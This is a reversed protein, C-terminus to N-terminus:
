ERREAKTEKVFTKLERKMERHLVLMGILNPLTMLVIAIGSFAWIISTDVFASVFFGIVFIVRFLTLWKVGFLFTIARDGYYSWSVATSFAFLLLSLSVIYEGFKGLPSRSFAQTTLPASHILSKGRIIFTDSGDINGAKIPITGTFPKGGKEFVVEEAVSRAHLITVPTLVKGDKVEISGSPMNLDIKGAVHEYLKKTDSESDTYLAALVDMDATQFQNDLKDKWVGSSLITLGTFMCIIVTDIFPELLAVCGESCPYKTKAAAHAIPSSGQGAENSFLGRNVGRNFAFAVSAGIFGGVAATGNFVGSFIAEISPLINQYNFILVCSAGVFYIVAMTPVLSQTVKVIRKIGKVVIIFLIVALIAGVLIKSLGFSSFMANAISNSQPMSGTGFSCFLTGVAFICAMWKANLRNKMYYMPGGAMSGDSAVERYKHSLTVEVMKTTMGLLATMLMWFLASPGGLHVAFAVGAINGTGITGSLATSLAQFQTADGQTGTSKGTLSRWGRKFFRFQPFGLYITFFLGTGLLIIVFWQSSGLFGDLKLLFDTITQM